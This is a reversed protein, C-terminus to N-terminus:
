HSRTSVRLIIHTFTLVSVGLLPELYHLPLELFASQTLYSFYRLNLLTTPKGENFIIKNFEITM